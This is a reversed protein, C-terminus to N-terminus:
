RRPGPGAVRGTQRTKFAVSSKYTCPAALASRISRLAHAYIGRTDTAGFAAAPQLGPHRELRTVSRAKSASLHYQFSPPSFPGGQPGAFAMSSLPTIFDVFAAAAQRPKPCQRGVHAALNRGRHAINSACAQPVLAGVLVFDILCYGNRRVFISPASGALRWAGGEAGPRASVPM